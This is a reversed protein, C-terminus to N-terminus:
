LSRIAQARHFLYYSEIDMGECFRQQIRQLFAKKEDHTLELPDAKADDMHGGGVVSRLLVGGPTGYCIYSGLDKEDEVAHYLSYVADYDRPRHSSIWSNIIRQRDTELEQWYLGEM